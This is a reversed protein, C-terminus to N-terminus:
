KRCAPGYKFILSTAIADALKQDQPSLNGYSASAANMGPTGVVIHLKDSERLRWARVHNLCFPTYGKLNYAGGGVILTLLEAGDSKRTIMYEDTEWNVRSRQAVVGAPLRLTLNGGDLSVTSTLLQASLVVTAPLM